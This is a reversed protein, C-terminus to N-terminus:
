RTIEKKKQANPVLNLEILTELVIEKIKEETPPKPQSTQKPAQPSPTQKGQSSPNQNAVKGKEKLQNRM